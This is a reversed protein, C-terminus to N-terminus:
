NSENVAELLNNYLEKTADKNKLGVVLINNEKATIVVCSNEHSYSYLTYKGFQENIFNGLLLRASGFGYVRQGKQANELFEVKEIDEFDVTLEAYYTSKVSFSTDGVEAYINGTFMVTAFIVSLVPVFVASLIIAVKKTQKFKQIQGNDNKRSEPHKARYVYSYITPALIVALFLTVLPYSIYKLPLMACPLMLLGCVFWVKGGFRHTANWNEESELTTSIKIGMTFNQRCKPLYNGIILMLSGFPISIIAPLLPAIDFELSVAFTLLSIIVSLAPIIYLVIKHMKRNQEASKRDILVSLFFVILNVALLMLPTLLIAFLKGSFGNAEGNLAWHIPMTSPLMDWLAFGLPIPLITIVSSFILNKLNKKIM